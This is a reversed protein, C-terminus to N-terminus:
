SGQSSDGMLRRGREKAKGQGEGSKKEESEMGKGVV